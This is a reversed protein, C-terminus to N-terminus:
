AGVLVGPLDRRSRIGLKRYTNSLHVEVTKPTVYLAQAIDRNSSGEAALAAVRRESATLADVGSVADTRPRAGTAYLESRTHDALVSSGCAEALELARRLPDRADTPHRTRRLASGYAALARAREVRAHSRELVEAAEALHDLGREDGKVQGAIRLTRGVIGSAGFERALRLEEEVLEIGEEARGLRALARARQSRWPWTTPNVIRPRMRRELEFSAELAEEAKNEALLIEIHARMWHRAGDSVDAYDPALELAARAAAVDGSELISRAHFSAFYAHIAPVYGYATMSENAGDLHERAEALEGLHFYTFGLWGDAASKGFMSGRRYADALAEDWLPLTDEADCYTLVIIAPINFLGNDAQILTNGALARRALRVCERYDGNEQMLDYAVMADIMRAGPGAGASKEGRYRELDEVSEADSVGFYYGIADLAQLSQRVDIFEEPLSERARRAFSVGASPSATFLLTRGLAFASMARLEDNPASDYAARLHEAAAVGNTLAETLGLEFVVSPRKEDPPPEDLARQFYAVANDVAGRRQASRGAEVLMESVWADGRRPIDLLHSAVHAPDAGAAALVRAAREHQLEREGPPLEHYVADRVLPHVFGLPAEPRLIEARALAATAAAAQNEDLDALAAVTPLEASEGLVAVARAVAITEAPLRALRLLVSRSVARPGIEAVVRTNAAEPTVGEAELATVLQRVLLPNGGTTRHCAACFADDAESGLRERVLAVVGSLSLPGPRVYVTSPDQALEGMIAEDTPPEGTRVTAAVLTRLGELRRTLYALYRLSPRDCWQLDDIALVLPQDHALNLTMWFLGHLVAFSADIAGDGDAQEAPAGFVVHAPAAAGALVRDRTEPEALAAEFLQRVVGFPFGRELESARALLTRAGRAAAHSRTEVLLRTKGVGAPGEILVLSGEGDLANRLEADLQALEREREVLEAAASPPSPRM